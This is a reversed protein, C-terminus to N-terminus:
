LCSIESKPLLPTTSDTYRFCLRQDAERNGRPQDTDKNECICFDPKRVDRSYDNWSMLHTLLMWLATKINKIMRLVILPFLFLHKCIKWYAHLVNLAYMFPLKYMMGRENSVNLAYTTRTAKTFPTNRLCKIPIFTGLCVKGNVNVNIRFDGAVVLNKLSNWAQMLPM